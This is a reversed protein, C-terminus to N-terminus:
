KTSSINSLSEPIHGLAMIVSAAVVPWSKQALGLFLVCLLPSIALPIPIGLLPEFLLRFERGNLFFRTWGVYYIVLMLSMLFLFLITSRDVRIKWFLPLIFIAIRGIWEIAIIVSWWPPRHSEAPINVPPLFMSLINPLLILGVILLNIPYFKLETM